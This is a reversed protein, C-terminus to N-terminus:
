AIDLRLGDVYVNIDAASGEKVEFYELSGTFYFRDTSSSVEGNVGRSYVYDNWEPEDIPEVSETAKFEYRTQPGTGEIEIVHRDPSDATSSQEEDGRNQGYQAMAHEVTFLHWQVQEDLPAKETTECIYGPRDLMGAVRHVLMDRDANLTNGMRYCLDGSLDFHNNLAAVTNEGNSRAPSTWTPFMAQGVGDDGSKYIGHSSHLDFV